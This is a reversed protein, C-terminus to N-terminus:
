DTFKGGANIWNTIINKEAQPLPGIPPMTGQDVARVKIRAQSTVINCDVTWNMGGEQLTNNHCSQCRAVILNKVDTFLPGAVGKSNVTVAISKECGDVDRAFVNYDGAAVGSFTGSAQYTGASNLKYTFGTSGAAVATITGGTSCAAASTSSSTISISKGICVDSPPPPPPPPPNPSVDKKSCSIFYGSGVLLLIISLSAIFRQNM